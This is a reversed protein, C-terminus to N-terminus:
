RLCNSPKSNFFTITSFSLLKCCLEFIKEFDDKLKKSAYPTQGFTFVEWLVVGFSWVDSFDNKTIRSQYIEITIKLHNLM